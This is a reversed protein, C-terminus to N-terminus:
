STSRALAGRMGAIWREYDGAKRQFFGETEAHTFVMFREDRIAEVAQEAVDAPEVIRGASKVASEAEGSGAGFLMNTRVAQPCLASVRIGRDGYTIALWEAFGVAAHKSVAYPAAGLSTLLGAASCNNVFYGEGRELMAPLAARAAWVHAMLNVSMAKSWEGDVAEPGGTVIVGANSCFIDIRGSTELAYSVLAQVGAESAVDSQRAVAVGGSAVIGDAVRRAGDGDLDAVIVLGAQGEAFRRALAEGIGTAAGTVVITRGAIEM